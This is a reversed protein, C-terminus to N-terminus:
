ALVKAWRAPLDAAIADIMSKSVETQWAIHGELKAGNYNQVWVDVGPYDDHASINISFSLHRDGERCASVIPQLKNHAYRALWFRDNASDNPSTM